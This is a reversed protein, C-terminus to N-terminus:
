QVLVTCWIANSDGIGCDAIEGDSVKTFVGKVRWHWTGLRTFREHYGQNAFSFADVDVGTGNGGKTGNGLSGQTCVHHNWNYTTGGGWNWVDCYGTGSFKQTIKMTIGTRNKVEGCLYGTYDDCTTASASGAGLVLAGSALLVVTALMAMLRHISKKM